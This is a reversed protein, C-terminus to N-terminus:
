ASKGDGCVSGSGDLGARRRVITPCTRRPPCADRLSSQPTFVINHRPFKSKWFVDTLVRQLKKYQEVVV